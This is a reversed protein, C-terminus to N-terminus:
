YFSIECHLACENDGDQEGRGGARRRFVLFFIGGGSCGRRRRDRLIGGQIGIAPSVAIRIFLSLFPIIDPRGETDGSNRCCILRGGRRGVRAPDLDDILAVRHPKLAGARESRNTPFLLLRLQRFVFATDEIGPFRIRVLRLSLPIFLSSLIVFKKLARDVATQTKARAAPKARACCGGGAWGCGAWVWAAWAAGAGVTGPPNFRLLADRISTILRSACSRWM